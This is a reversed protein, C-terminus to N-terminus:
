IELFLRKIDKHMIESSQIINFCFSLKQDIENFEIFLANYFDLVFFIGFLLLLSLLINVSLIIISIGVIIFIIDVIIGIGVSNILSLSICTGVMALLFLVSGGVL